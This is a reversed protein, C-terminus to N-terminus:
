PRAGPGTAQSLQALRRALSGASAGHPHHRLYERIAVSEETRSTLQQLARVRGLRAEQALPIDSSMGPSLLVRRVGDLWRADATELGVQADPCVRYLEDLGPPKARTDIARVLEGRAALHRAVSVGTAGLGVILSQPGAAGQM